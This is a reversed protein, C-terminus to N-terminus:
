TGGGPELAAASRRSHGGGSGSRSRASSQADDSRSNMSGAHGITSGPVVNLDLQCMSAIQSCRSATERPWMRSNIMLTGGRCMFDESIATSHGVQSHSVLGSVL